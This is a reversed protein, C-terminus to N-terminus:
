KEAQKTIELTRCEREKQGARKTKSGKRANCSRCLPQINEPADKGGKSLPEIHDRELKIATEKRGCGQCTFNFIEKISKWSGPRRIFVGKSNRKCGTVSVVSGIKQIRRMHEMRDAHVHHKACLRAINEPANNSPNGDKHHRQSNPKGCVECPVDARYLSRARQRANDADTTRIPNSKVLRRKIGIALCKNSCFSKKSEPIESPKRKVQLGCIVCNAIVQMLPKGYIGMRRAEAICRASCFHFKFKDAYFKRRYRTKGCACCEVLVFDRNGIRIRKEQHM